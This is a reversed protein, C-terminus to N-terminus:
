LELTGTSQLKLEKGDMKLDRVEARIEEGISIMTDILEKHAKCGLYITKIYPFPIKNDFYESIQGDFIIRWEKEYNWNASKVVFTKYFLEDINCNYNIGGSSDIQIQNLKTVPINIKGATYEIPLFRKLSQKM